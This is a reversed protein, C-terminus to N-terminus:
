TGPAPRRTRSGSRLATTAVRVLHGRMKQGADLGGDQYQRARLSRRPQRSPPVAPDLVPIGPNMVSGPCSRQYRDSQSREHQGQNGATQGHGGEHQFDHEAEHDAGDQAPDFDPLAEDAKQGLEAKEQQQEESTELDVEVTQLSLTHALHERCKPKPREKQACRPHTSAVEVRGGPLSPEEQAQQNGGRCHAQDDGCEALGILRHGAEALQQQEGGDDALHEAEHPDHNEGAKDLTARRQADETPERM